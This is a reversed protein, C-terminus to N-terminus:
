RIRVVRRNTSPRPYGRCRRPLGEKGQALRVVPEYTLPLPKKRGGKGRIKNSTDEDDEEAPEEDEGTLGEGSELLKVM